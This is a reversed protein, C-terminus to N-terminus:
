CNRKLLVFLNGALEECDVLPMTAVKNEYRAFLPEIIERGFHKELVGEMGTRCEVSGLQPATEGRWPRLELKEVTFCGNAEVLTRLEAMSPTYIPLNFSNVEDMEVIGENAMDVLCSELAWFLPGNSCKSAAVGDPRGPILAVLIGGARVEESRAALFLKMDKAFQAGYAEGVEDPANAYHIRGRNCLRSSLDCVEPPARSLWHLAYSSHVIDLSESLFLRGRFSGPVGAAFYTRPNPLNLFLTTFDNSAHDNFLVQIEALNNSDRGLSLEYKQQVADIINQMAIFTNPGVSCGLDAIQIRTKSFRKHFELDLSEVISRTLIEKADHAARKQRSSNNSYSYPGHGGIMPFAEGIDKGDM